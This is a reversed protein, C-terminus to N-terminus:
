PADDDDEENSVEENEPAMDEYEGTEPNEDFIPEDSDNVFIRVNGEANATDVQVLASGDADSTGVWVMIRQGSPLDVGLEYNPQARDAEIAAVILGEVADALETASFERRESFPWTYENLWENVATGAIQEPTKM